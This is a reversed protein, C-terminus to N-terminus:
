NNVDFNFFRECDNEDVNNNEDDVVDIEVVNKVDNIKIDISKNFDVDIIFKSISIVRFRFKKKTLTSVFLMQKSMSTSKM